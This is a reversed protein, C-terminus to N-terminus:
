VHLVEIGAIQYCDTLEAIGDTILIDVDAGELVKHHSRSNLKDSTALVVVQDSCRAMERKISAEDYDDASLGYELHFGCTGLICLNAACNSIANAAEVGTAIGGLPRIRGGILITEIELELLVTAVLPSPTLVLGSFRFPLHKAFELVSTGGDLFITPSNALLTPLHDTVKALWNSNNQMREVLPAAPKQIPVAGGKVRKILGQNELAIFDRRITDASVAFETSINRAILTKGQKLRETLIAQRTDPNNLDLSSTPM